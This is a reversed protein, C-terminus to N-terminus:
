AMTLIVKGRARRTTIAAFAEVYQDLAFTETVRLKLEGKAAMQMLEKFNQYSAKPDRSAWTGWWVGIISAEKLLALNAPLQPIEGSAFGIVLYRGHWATARLAQQALEGGVPDYVVDVGRGDTLAKVEDRLSQETYNILHDAGMEKAYECKAASSAAAIVTAGMSKALEVATSGVGGAAGLVLVTEGAKLAASQKYAHYTTGYTIAFGAAQEFSMGRAMPLVREAPLVCKEAFAGHEPLAVVQDGVSLGGVGDGVAAIVGSAESGPVFPPSVKVQYQGHILLNDPFNIGAAKIQVLVEGPGVQPDDRQEIVLKDAPGYEVCVLARM